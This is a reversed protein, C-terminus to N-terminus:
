RMLRGSFWARAMWCIVLSKPALYTGDTRQQTTRLPKLPLLTPIVRRDLCLAVFRPFSRHRSRCTQAEVLAVRLLPGFVNILGPDNRPAPLPGMRFRRIRGKKM